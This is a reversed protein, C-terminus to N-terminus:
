EITMMMTMKMMMAMTMYTKRNARRQPAPQFPPGAAHAGVNPAAEFGRSSSCCWTDCKSTRRTLSSLSATISSARTAALLPGSRGSRQGDAAARSPTSPSRALRRESAVATCATAGSCGCSPRSSTSAGHRTRAHRRAAGREAADPREGNSSGPTPLPTATSPARALCTRSICARAWFMYGTKPASKPAVRLGQSLIGVFNVLRSGHWLLRTNHSLEALAARYEDAEGQRARRSVRAGRSLKCRSRSRRRRRRHASSMARHIDGNSRCRSSGAAAAQRLARGDAVADRHRADRVAVAARDARAADRGHPDQRAGRRALRAAAAGQRRRRRAAGAHLLAGDAVPHRRSVADAVLARERAAVARRVGARDDGADAQRAAHPALRVADGRADGARQPPQVAAADRAKCRRISGRRCRATTATTWRASVVGGGGSQVRRRWRHRRRRRADASDDILHM